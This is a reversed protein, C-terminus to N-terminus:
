GRRTRVGRMYDKLMTDLFAILEEPTRDLEGLLWSELLGTLATVCFHTLLEIDVPHADLSEGLQEITRSILASVESRVFRKLHDRGMSRLACLCVTRNEELYQFLALLGEQWLTEGEHNLLLSVAENQFTWRLLDYIDEFHYYFNQRRMGALETIEHIAIKELPKQAMLAKLATSLAQKSQAAGSRKEM